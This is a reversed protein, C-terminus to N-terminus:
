INNDTEGESQILFKSLTKQMNNKRENFDTYSYYTKGKLISSVSDLTSSNYLLSREFLSKYSKPFDIISFNAMNEIDQGITDAPWDSHALFDNQRVIREVKLFSGIESDKWKDEVLYHYLMVFGNRYRRREEFFDDSVNITSLPLPRKNMIRANIDFVKYKIDQSLDYTYCIRILDELFNIVEQEEFKNGSDLITYMFVVMASLPIASSHEQLVQYLLATKASSRKLTDIEELVNEILNLEAMITRWKKTKFPSFENNLFFNRLNPESTTQDNKARLIRLYYRFVDNIPVNLEVCKQGLDKWLSIFEDGEKISSAMEYLKAKLIDADALDLGRNNITEFITLARTTAEAMDKGDLVIPLLYVRDIFYKWFATQSANDIRSFYEHLWKYIYVANSQIQGLRSIEKTKSKFDDQKWSLLDEIGSQDAEEFVMSDIKSLVKEDEWDRISLMEELRSVNTLIALVKLYMWLTLIRQQGDIIQPRAKDDYGRAIVINGVFYDENSNFAQTIDDFLQKVEKKTWRYPRQFSPVIYRDDNIFLSRLNKQEASLSLAM